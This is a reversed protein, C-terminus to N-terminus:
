RFVARIHGAAVAAIEGATRKTVRQLVVVGAADSVGEARVADEDSAVQLGGNWLRARPKQRDAPKAHRACM